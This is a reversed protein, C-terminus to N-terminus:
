QNRMRSEECVKGMVSWAAVVEVEVALSVGLVVGLWVVVEELAM